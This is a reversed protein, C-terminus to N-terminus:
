DRGNMVDRLLQLEPSVSFIEDSENELVRLCEPCLNNFDSEKFGKCKGCKGIRSKDLVDAITNINQVVEGALKEAFAHERQERDDM